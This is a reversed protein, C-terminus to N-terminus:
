YGNSKYWEIASDLGQDLTVRPNFGLLRAAKSINPLFKEVEGTRIEGIKIENQAHCKKLLTQVVELVPVAKPFAINFAENKATDFHALGLLIGEVADDLYTFSLAKEKGFVTISKQDGIKQFLLPILRDSDDYRGYVNSFRLIQFDIGFCKQYAHVFSEGSLKSASYPSETQEVRVDSEDLVPKNLNGYVERSSAFVFRPVKRTRSYELCNLTMALNDFALAPNEVSPYVLANAALHIVVDAKSAISHMANPKRLDLIVTKAHIKKNWRNAQHDVGIIKYGEDLLRECLRTGIMGSSGTVLVTRIPKM